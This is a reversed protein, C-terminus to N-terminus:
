FTVYWKGDVRVWRSPDEAKWDRGARVSWHVQATKYDPGFTIDDIRVDDDSIRGLKMLGAIVGFRIKVANAGHQRVYNPDTLDVCADLEDHRLHRVLSAAREGIVKWHHSAWLSPVWDYTLEPKLWVVAVAALIVVLLVVIMLKKM